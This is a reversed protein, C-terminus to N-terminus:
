GDHVGLAGLTVKGLNLALLIEQADNAPLGPRDGPINHVPARQIPLPLILIPKPSDNVWIEQGIVPYEEDQEWQQGRAARAEAIDAAARCHGAGM